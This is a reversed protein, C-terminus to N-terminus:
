IQRENEKEFRERLNVSAFLGVTKQSEVSANDTICLKKKKGSLEQCM